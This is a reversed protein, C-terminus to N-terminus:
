DNQFNSLSTKVHKKCPPSPTHRVYQLRWVGQTDRGTHPKPSLTRKPNPNLAQELYKKFLNQIKPSRIPQYNRIRLIISGLNISLQSVRKRYSFINFCILCLFKIVVRTIPRMACLRPTSVRLGFPSSWQHSVCTFLSFRFLLRWVAFKMEADDKGGM